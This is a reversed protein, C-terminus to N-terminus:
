LTRLHQVIKLANEEPMEPLHPMKHKNPAGNIILNVISEDDLKTRRNPPIGNLFNGQGNSQHCEACYTTYLQQPTADAGLEGGTKDGCGTLVLMFLLPPTIHIIARM